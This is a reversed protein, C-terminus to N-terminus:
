KREATTGRVAPQRWAFRQAFRNPKREFVDAILPGLVPAFKFAHGSGGACVMLGEREPDHDIWFNGDFTDCYFCLRSRALPANALGPLSQRLFARFPAEAEAPVESQDRPDVHLGPGHNAVKVIGNALAPFGYWGATHIDAGWVPFLPPQYAPLDTTSFHLVPQGVPWMLPALAPLLGPTWPGAAVIVADGTYRSGDATIIGQVKRGTELLGAVAQGEYLKVGARHAEPLLHAVVEGSEAWGARPNFYGSVYYASNWAPFQIQIAQSDLADVPVGRQQLRVLSEYELDGPEISHSAIFIMGTQHYLPREWRANWEEWGSFAEAMLDFYFDESGYDMRIVKSIDTSAARPHPLPGPDFLSVSCGRKALEVAATIGFIGGGVIIISANSKM